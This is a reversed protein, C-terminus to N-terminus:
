GKNSSAKLRVKNFFEIVISITRNGGEIMVMHGVNPVSVVEAKGGLWDNIVHAGEVPLIRDDEGWIIQIPFDTKRLQLFVNELNTAGFNKITQFIANYYGEFAASRRISQEFRIVEDPQDSAFHARVRGLTLEKRFLWFLYEGVLPIRLISVVLESDPAYGASGHISIALVRDPHVGAWDAVIGGGLSQGVLYIPGDINLSKLLEDIQLLYTASNYEFEKSRESGGRGVLDYRLTRYGAKKFEEAPREFYDTGETTLGGVFLVLPFNEKGDLIYRITGIKTRVFSGVFNKRAEDDLKRENTTFLWARTIAILNLSVLFVISIIFVRKM